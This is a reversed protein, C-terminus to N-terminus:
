SFPSVSLVAGVENYFVIGENVVPSAPATSWEEEEEEAEEVRVEEEVAKFSPGAFCPDGQSASGRLGAMALPCDWVSDLSSGSSSTSSCCDQGYSPLNSLPDCAQSSWELSARRYIQSYVPPGQTDQVDTRDSGTSSTSTSTSSSSSSSPDHLSLGILAEFSEVQSLCPSTM